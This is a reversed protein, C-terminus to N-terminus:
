IVTLLQYHCENESLEAKWIRIQIGQLKTGPKPDKSLIYPDELSSKVLDVLDIRRKAYHRYNTLLPM